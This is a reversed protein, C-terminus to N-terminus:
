SLSPQSLNEPHSLLLPDPDLRKRKVFPYQHVMKWKTREADGGNAKGAYGPLSPMKMSVSISEAENM